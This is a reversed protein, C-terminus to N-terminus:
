AEDPGREEGQLPEKWCLNDEQLVQEKKLRVMAWAQHLTNHLACDSAESPGGTLPFHVLVTCTYFGSVAAHSFYLELEERIVALSKM